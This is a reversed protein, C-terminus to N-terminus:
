ILTGDDVMQGILQGNEAASGDCWIVTDPHTTRAVEDVWEEVSSTMQSRRTDQGHSGNSSQQQHKAAGASSVQLWASIAHYPGCRAYSARAVLWSASGEILVVRLGNEPGRSRVQSDKFDLSYNLM